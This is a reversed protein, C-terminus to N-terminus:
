SKVMRLFGRGAPAAKAETAPEAATLLRLGERGRALRSMLTGAPLGLITAAEEYTMGDIAVLAIAERQEAPLSMLADLARGLEVAEFQNPAAAGAQLLAMEALGREEVQASRWNSVWLNHMISMLWPRIPRATDLSAIREYAGALTAQVLDEATSLDRTLVLAYRRLVPLLAPLSQDILRSRALRNFM